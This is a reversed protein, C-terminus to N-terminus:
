DLFGFPSPPYNTTNELPGNAVTYNTVNEQQKFIDGMHTKDPDV